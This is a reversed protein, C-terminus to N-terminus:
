KNMIMLLTNKPRIRPEERTFNEEHTPLVPEVRSVVGQQQIYNWKDQFLYLFTILCVEITFLTFWLRISRSTKEHYAQLGTYVNIIGLLTIGTGLGWHVFFWKSRGRIGKQPRRFGIFAQVWVFAYLAVGIRRHQNNFINEFNKISMVAAVTVLLASLIQLTVHLYFLLKLRRGCKETNSMRIILLGLPMLFGMSAWLLFGHVTIEFSLKPSMKEVSENKSDLIRDKVLELPNYSSHVFPTSLLLLLILINASITFSVLKKAPFQM